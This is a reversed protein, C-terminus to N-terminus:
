NELDFRHIERNRLLVALQDDKVGIWCIQSGVEEYVEIFPLEKTYDIKYGDSFDIKSFYTKYERKGEIKKYDLHAIYLTNEILCFGKICHNKFLGKGIKKLDKNSIDFVNCGFSEDNDTEIVVMRDRPLLIPHGLVLDVLKKRATIKPNDSETIDMVVISSQNIWYITDESVLTQSARDSFDGFPIVRKSPPNPNEPTPIESVFYGDNGHKSLYVQKYLRNKSLSCCTYFENERHSIVKINKSDGFNVIAMYGDRYLLLKHEEFQYGPRFFIGGLSVE